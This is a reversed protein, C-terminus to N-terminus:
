YPQQHEHPGARTDIKSFIALGTNLEETVARIQHVVCNILKYRLVALPVFIHLPKCNVNLSDHKIPPFLKWAELLLANILFFLVFMFRFSVCSLKEVYYYALPLEVVSFMM